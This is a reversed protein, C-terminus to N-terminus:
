ASVYTGAQAILALLLWAPHASQALEVLRELSGFHLVVLILTLFGLLGLFWSLATRARSANGLLGPAIAVLGTKVAPALQGQSSSGEQGDKPATRGPQDKSPGM